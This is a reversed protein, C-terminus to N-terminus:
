IRISKGDLGMLFGDIYIKIMKYDKTTFVDKGKYAVHFETDGNSHITVDWRITQSNDKIGSGDNSIPRMPDDRFVEVKDFEKQTTPKLVLMGKDFYAEM